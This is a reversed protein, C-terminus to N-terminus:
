EPPTCHTDRRRELDSKVRHKFDQPEHGDEMEAKYRAIDIEELRMKLAKFLRPMHQGPVQVHHLGGSYALLMKGEPIAHLIDAIGGRVTMPRGAKDLGDARKMRGEPLIVLMVDDTVRDIVAKWTRDAQRSIPLAHPVLLRFFRGVIPRNFTVDAVPVMAHGAIHWVFKVPVLGIYLWEFLSTHNLIALIKYPGWPDEPEGVWEVDFRYFPQIVIKLTMLICFTLVRRIFAPVERM